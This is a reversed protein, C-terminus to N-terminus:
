TTAAVEANWRSGEPVSGSASGLPAHAIPTTGGGPAAGGGHRHQPGAILELVVRGPEAEVIRAGLTEMWGAPRAELLAKARDPNPVPGSAQRAQKQVRELERSMRGGTM